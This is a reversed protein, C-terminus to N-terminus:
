VRFAEAPFIKFIKRLPFLSGTIGIITSFIFLLIYDTLKYAVTLEPVFKILVPNLLLNLVVGLAFGSISCIISQKLIIGTLFLRSGGIAKILAYDERKELVSNYLMLTIVFIGAFLGLLATTWIIPLVGKEVEDLNNQIFENKDYAEVFDFKQKISDIVEHHNIRPKLKLLFYSVKDKMNYIKSADENTMFIYQTVVANTKESIGAIKYYKNDISTSDNLNLKNKAAFSKDIVIEGNSIHTTGSFMTQPHSMKNEPDIGFGIFTVQKGKIDTSTMIRFISTINDVGAIAKLLSTLSSDLISSSRLLNTANKQCVWIEAPSERIFGVAGTKVGNYINFLFLTLMISLSIGVITISFKAKDRIIISRALSSM